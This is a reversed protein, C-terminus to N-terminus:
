DEKYNILIFYKKAAGLTSTVKLTANQDGNIKLPVYGPAGGEAYFRWVTNTQDDEDDTFFIRINGTTAETGVYIGKVSLSRGTTPTLVVNATQNESFEVTLSKDFDHDNAIGTLSKYAM